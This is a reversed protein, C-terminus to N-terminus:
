YYATERFVVWKNNLYLYVHSPGQWENTAGRRKLIVQCAGSPSHAHLGNDFEFTHTTTDFIGHRVIRDNVRAKCAFPIREDEEDEDEEYEEDEELEEDEDYEEDEELEEDEDDEPYYPYISVLQSWQSDSLRQAGQQELFQELLRRSIPAEGSGFLDYDVEVAVEYTVGIGGYKRLVYEMNVRSLGLLEVTEEQEDVEGGEEEEEHAFDESSAPLNEEMEEDEEMEEVEEMEEDEEMEECEEHEEDEEMEEDDQEDYEVGEFKQDSLLELMIFTAIFSALFMIFLPVINKELIETTFNETFIEM